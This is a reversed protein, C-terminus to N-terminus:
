PLWTFGQPTGQLCVVRFGVFSGAVCPRYRGRSASRCRWPSRGEWPILFWSGGRVQRPSDPITM